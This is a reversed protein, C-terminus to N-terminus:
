VGHVQHAGGLGLLCPNIWRSLPGFPNLSPNCGYPVTLTCMYPPPWKTRFSPALRAKIYYIMSAAVATGGSRRLAFDSHLPGERSEAGGFPGRLSARAKPAIFAPRARSTECSTSDAIRLFQSLDLNPQCLDFGRSVLRRKNVYTVRSM